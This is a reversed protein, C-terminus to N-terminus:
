PRLRLEEALIAIGEPIRASPISSYALRYYNSPPEPGRFFSHGPEILVSRARLRRDL